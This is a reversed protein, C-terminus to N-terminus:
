IFYKFEVVFWCFGGRFNEFSKYSPSVDVKFIHLIGSRNSKLIIVRANDTGIFLKDVSVKDVPNTIIINEEYIISANFGLPNRISEDPIFSILTEQRSFDIIFGLTSITQEILFLFDTEAFYGEEILIRKIQDKM